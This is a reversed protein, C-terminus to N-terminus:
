EQLIKAMECQIGIMPDDELVKISMAKGKTDFECVGSLVKFGGGRTRGQLCIYVQSTKDKMPLFGANIVKAELPAALEKRVESECKKKQVGGAGYASSVVSLSAVLTLTCLKVNM